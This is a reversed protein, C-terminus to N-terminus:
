QELIGVTFSGTGLEFGYAMDADRTFWTIKDNKHRWRRDIKGTAPDYWGLEPM